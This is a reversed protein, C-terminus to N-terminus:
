GAGGAADLAAPASGMCPLRRGGSSIAYEQNNPLGWLHFDQGERDCHAAYYEGREDWRPNMGWVGVPEGLEAVIARTAREDDYFICHPLRAIAPRLSGFTVRLAADRHRRLEAGGMESLM